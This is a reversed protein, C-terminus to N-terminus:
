PRDKGQFIRDWGERFAESATVVAFQKREYKMRVEGAQADFRAHLAADRADQARRRSAIERRHAYHAYDRVPSGL